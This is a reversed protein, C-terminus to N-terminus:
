CDFFRYFELNQLWPSKLQSRMIDTRAYQFHVKAAQCVFHFNVYSNFCFFKFYSAATWDDM